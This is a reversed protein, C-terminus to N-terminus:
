PAQKATRPASRSNPAGPGRRRHLGAHIRPDPRDLGNSSRRRGAPPHARLRGRTTPIRPPSATSPADTRRTPSRSTHHDTRRRASGRGARGRRRDAEKAVARRLTRRTGESPARHRPSRARRGRSGRIASRASRGPPSAPAAWARERVATWATSGVFSAQRILWRDSTTGRTPLRSSISRRGARPAGEPAYRTHTPIAVTDGSPPESTPDGRKSRLPGNEQSGQPVFHPMTSWPTWGIEAFDSDRFGRSVLSWM